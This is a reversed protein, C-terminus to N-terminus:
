RRSRPMGISSAEREWALPPTHQGWVARVRELEIEM